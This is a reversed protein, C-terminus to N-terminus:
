LIDEGDGDGGDRDEAPYDDGERLLESLWWDIIVSTVVRREEVPDGQAHVLEKGVEEVLLQVGDRELPYISGTFTWRGGRQALRAGFVEGKLASSALAEDVLSIPGRSPDLLDVLTAEGSWAVEQVEYLRVPRSAIEALWERAQPSLPPGEAGLILDIIRVPTGDVVLEGDAVLWEEMNIAAEDGLDDPLAELAEKMEDDAGGLFGDDIVGQVEELYNKYLWDVASDFGRRQERMLTAAAEEVPLCCKKYKKGSGCHCLENRGIKEM